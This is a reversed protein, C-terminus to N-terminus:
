FRGPHEEEASVPRFRERFRRIEGPSVIHNFDSFIVEDDDTMLGRVEAQRYPNASRLFVVVPTQRPQVHFATAQEADPPQADRSSTFWVMATAVLLVVAAQALLGPMRLWRSGGSSLRGAGLTRGRLRGEVEHWYSADEAPLMEETWAAERLADTCRALSALLARCAECDALHEKVKRADSAPLDGGVYLGLLRACKSCTM